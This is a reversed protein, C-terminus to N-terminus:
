RSGDWRRAARTGDGDAESPGAAVHVFVRGVEDELGELTDLAKAQRALVRLKQFWHGGEEDSLRDLEAPSFLALVSGMKQGWWTAASRVQEPIYDDHRHSLLADYIRRINVVASLKTGWNAHSRTRDVIDDLLHEM